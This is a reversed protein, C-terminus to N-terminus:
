NVKLISIAETGKQGVDALEHVAQGLAGEVCQNSLTQYPVGMQVQLVVIAVSHGVFCQM